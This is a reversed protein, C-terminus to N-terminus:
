LKVNTSTIWTRTQDSLGSSRRGVESVEEKPGLFAASSRMAKREKIYLEPAYANHPPEVIRPPPRSNGSKIPSVNGGLTTLSGRPGYPPCFGGGSRITVAEVWRHVRVVWCWGSHALDYLLVFLAVPNVIIFMAFHRDARM